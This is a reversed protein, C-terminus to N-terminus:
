SMVELMVLVTLVLGIAGVAVHCATFLVALVAALAYSGLRALTVPM